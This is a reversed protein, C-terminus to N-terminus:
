DSKSQLRKLGEDLFRRVLENSAAMLDDPKDARMKEAAEIFEVVL